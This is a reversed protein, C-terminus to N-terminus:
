KGEFATILKRRRPVEDGVIVQQIPGAHLAGAGHDVGRDIGVQQKDRAAGGAASRLARLELEIGGREQRLAKGSADFMLESYVPTGYLRSHCKAVRRFATKISAIPPYLPRTTMAGFQNISVWLRRRRCLLWYLESGM